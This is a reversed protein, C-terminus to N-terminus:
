IAEVRLPQGEVPLTVSGEMWQDIQGGVPGALVTVTGQYGNGGVQPRFMFPQKEGHNEQLYEALAQDAGDTSGHAYGLELDWEPDSVDSYRGQPCLTKLRQPSSNPTLTVSRLQCKFNPGTGEDGLILDVNKMMIPKFAM